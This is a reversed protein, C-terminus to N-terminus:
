NLQSFARTFYVAGGLPTIHSMSETVGLTDTLWVRRTNRNKDIILLGVDGGTINPGTYTFNHKTFNGSGIATEISLEKGDWGNIVRGTYPGEMMSTYGCSSNLIDLGCETYFGGVVHPDDRPATFVMYSVDGVSTM